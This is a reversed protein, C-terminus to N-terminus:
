EGEREGDMKAGCNPCFRHGGGTYELPYFTKCESCVQIPLVGDEHRIEADIWKGRKPEITPADDIANEFMKYRIWCGSDWKQMDTDTEFADHYMRKILADADIPRMRTRAKGNTGNWRKSCGDRRADTVSRKRTDENADSATRITTSTSSRTIM